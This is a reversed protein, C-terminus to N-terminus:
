TSPKPGASDWDEFDYEPLPDLEENAPTPWLNDIKELHDGVKLCIKKCSKVKAPSIKWPISDWLPTDAEQNTM